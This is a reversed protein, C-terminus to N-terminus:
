EVVLRLVQRAGDAVSIEVWYIGASLAQIDIATEEEATVALVIRLETPKVRVEAKGDVLIYSEAVDKKLPTSTPSAM